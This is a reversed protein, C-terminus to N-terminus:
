RDQDSLVNKRGIFATLTKDETSIRLLELFQRLVAQAVVDHCRGRDAAGPNIHSNGKFVAIPTVLHEITQSLSLFPLSVSPCLIILSSHGIGLEPSNTM